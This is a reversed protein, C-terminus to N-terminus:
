AVEGELTAQLSIEAVAAVAKSLPCDQKAALIEEPKTGRRDDAFRTAFGYPYANLAGTETSIQGQGTKGRGEWHVSSTKETM